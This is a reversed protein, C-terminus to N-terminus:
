SSSGHVCGITAGARPATRDVCWGDWDVLRLREVAALCEIRLLSGITMSRRVSHRMKGVARGEPAPSWRAPDMGGSDQVESRKKQDWRPRLSRLNGSNVAQVLLFDQM